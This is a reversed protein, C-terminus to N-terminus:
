ANRKDGITRCARGIEDEKVCIVRTVKSFPVGRAVAFRRELLHTSLM